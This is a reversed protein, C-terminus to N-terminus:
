GEMPKDILRLMISLLASSYLVLEFGIDVEGKRRVCIPPRSVSAVHALLDGVPAIRV